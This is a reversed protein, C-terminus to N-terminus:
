PNSAAEDDEDEQGAWYESEDVLGCKEAVKADSTVLKLLDEYIPTAQTEGPRLRAGGTGIEQQTGSDAM